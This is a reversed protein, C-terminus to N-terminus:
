QSKNAEKTMDHSYIYLKNHSYESRSNQFPECSKINGCPLCMLLQVPNFKKVWCQLNKLYSPRCILIYQYTIVPHNTLCLPKLTERFILKSEKWVVTISKPNRFVQHKLWCQQYAIPCDNQVPDLCKGYWHHWEIQLIKSITDATYYGCKDWVYSVCLICYM